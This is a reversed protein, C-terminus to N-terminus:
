REVELRVRGLSSVVVDVRRSGGELVMRGSIVGGGDCARAGGGPLWVVGIRLAQVVSVRGFRHLPLRRLVRAACADAPSGGSGGRAALGYVPDPTVAVSHGSWMAELRGWLLLARASEAARVAAGPRLRLAGVTTVALLALVVALEILTFGSQRAARRRGPGARELDIRRM